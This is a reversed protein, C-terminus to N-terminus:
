KILSDIMDELKRAYCLLELIEPSTDSANVTVMDGDIKTSADKLSKGIHQMLAFTTDKLISALVFKYKDEDANLFRILCLNKIALHQCIFSFKHPNEKALNPEESRIFYENPLYAYVITGNENHATHVHMDNKIDPYSVIEDIFKTISFGDENTIFAQDDNLFKNTM